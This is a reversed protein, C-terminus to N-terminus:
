DGQRKHSFGRRNAPSSAVPRKKLPVNRPQAAHGSGHFPHHRGSGAPGRKGTRKSTAKEVGCGALAIWILIGDAQRINETASYLSAMGAAQAILATATGVAAVSLLLLTIWLMGLGTESDNERQDDTM